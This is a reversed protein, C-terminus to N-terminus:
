GRRGHTEHARQGAQAVKLVAFTGWQAGHARTMRGPRGSRPKLLGTAKGYAASSGNLAAIAREGGRGAPGGELKGSYGYNPREEARTVQWLSAM